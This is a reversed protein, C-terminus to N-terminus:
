FAIWVLAYLTNNDSANTGFGDYNTHAGNFKNYITYQLSVKAKHWPLYDIELIFGDTNPRGTRSGNAAGPAYLLADQSGTTSFYAVTGGIFGMHKMEGMDMLGFRGMHYYNFNMRFTKLTDSRNSAMKSAVPPM